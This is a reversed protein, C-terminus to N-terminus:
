REPAVADLAGLGATKQSNVTIGCGEALKQSNDVASKPASKKLVSIAMEKRPRSFQLNRLIRRNKRALGWLGRQRPANTPLIDLIM